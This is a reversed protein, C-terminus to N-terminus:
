ENCDELDRQMLYRAAPCGQLHEELSNGFYSKSWFVGCCRCKYGGAVQEVQSQEALMKAIDKLYAAIQIVVKFQYDELAAM